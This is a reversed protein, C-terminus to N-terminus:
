GRIVRWLVALQQERNLVSQAMELTGYAARVRPDNDAFLRVLGLLDDLIADPHTGGSHKRRMDRLLSHHPCRTQLFDHLTDTAAVLRQQVTAERVAGDPPPEPPIERAGGRDPRKRDFVSLFTDAPGEVLVGVEEPAGTELPGGDIESVIHIPGGSGLPGAATVGSTTTTRVPGATGFAGLGISGEGKATSASDPQFPGSIMPQGSGQEGLVDYVLGEGPISTM